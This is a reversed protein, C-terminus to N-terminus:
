SSTLISATHKKPTNQSKYQGTQRFYLQGHHHTQICLVHCYLALETLCVSATSKDTPFNLKIRHSIASHHRKNNVCNVPAMSSRFLAALSSSSNVLTFCFIASSWLEAYTITTKATKTILLCGILQPAWSATCSNNNNNNTTTTTYSDYVFYV